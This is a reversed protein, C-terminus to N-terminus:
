ILRFVRDQDRSVCCAAKLDPVDTVKCQVALVLHPHAHVTTYQIYYIQVTCGWIDLTHEEQAALM